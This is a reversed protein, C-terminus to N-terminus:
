IALQGCEREKTGCGGTRRCAGDIRGTSTPFRKRGGGALVEDVEIDRCMGTRLTVEALDPVGDVVRRCREIRFHVEVADVDERKRAEVTKGPYAASHRFDTRL